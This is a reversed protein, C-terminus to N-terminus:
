YVEQRMDQDWWRMFRSNGPMIEAWTCLEYIPWCAVQASVTAKRKQMYEKIPFLRDTELAEAM